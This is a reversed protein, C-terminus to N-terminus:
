RQLKTEEERTVEALPELITELAVMCTIIVGEM